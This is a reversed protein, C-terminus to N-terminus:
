SFQSFRRPARRNKGCFRSSRLRRSIPRKQEAVAHPTPMQGAKHSLSQRSFVRLTSWRKKTKKHDARSRLLWLPRGRRNERRTPSPAGECHNTQGAATYGPLGCFVPSGKWNDSTSANSGVVNRKRLWNAAICKWCIAPPRSPKVFERFTPKSSAQLFRSSRCATRNCHMRAHRM